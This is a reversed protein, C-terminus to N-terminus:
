KVLLETLGERILPMLDQGTGDLGRSCNLYRIEDERGYAVALVSAGDDKAVPM